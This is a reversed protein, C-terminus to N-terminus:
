LNMVIRAAMVVLIIYGGFTAFLLRLPINRGMRNGVLFPYAVRTAIYLAGLVTAEGSSVIAAQLWLLVLFVPMHELMNLQIRDSALMERDQSFYRDFKEGRAEYERSLRLKVILGRTIFAYYVSFYALTVWAPGAFTATDLGLHQAIADM